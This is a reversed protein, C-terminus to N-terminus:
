TQPSDTAIPSPDAGDRQRQGQDSYRRFMIIIRPFLNVVQYVICLSELHYMSSVPKDLAAACIHNNSKQAM